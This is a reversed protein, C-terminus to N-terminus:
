LGGEALQDSEAPPQLGGDATPWGLGTGTDAVPELDTAGSGDTQSAAAPVETPWGLGALEGKPDVIPEM